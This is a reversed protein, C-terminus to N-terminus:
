NAPPPTQGAAQAAAEAAAQAAAARQQLEAAQQAIIAQANPDAFFADNHPCLRPAPQQVANPDDPDVPANPDVPPPTVVDASTISSGPDTILTTSGPILRPDEQLPLEFVGEQKFPCQPCAPLGSYGCVTGQYHVDCTTDPVTGEAFYETTLSGDCLGPIPLKGSRSCVTAQVIGEPVDFPKSPLDEHIQEM